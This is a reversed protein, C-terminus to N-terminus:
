RRGSGRAAHGGEATATAGGIQRTLSPFGQWLVFLVAAAIAAWLLPSRFPERNPSM